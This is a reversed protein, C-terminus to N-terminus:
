SLGLKRGIVLQHLMLQAFAQPPMGHLAATEGIYGCQVTIKDGARHVIYTGTYTQGKHEITVIKNM